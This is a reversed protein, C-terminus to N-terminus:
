NEEGWARVTPEGSRTIYDSNVYGFLDQHEGDLVRVYAYNTSPVFEIVEMKTLPALGEDTLPESDSSAESRLTLSQYVDAVYIDSDSDATNDNASTGEETTTVPDSVTAALQIEAQSQRSPVSFYLTIFGLLLTGIIICACILSVILKKFMSGGKPIM